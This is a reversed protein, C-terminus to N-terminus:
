NEPLGRRNLEANRGGLVGIRPTQQPLVDLYISTKVEADIATHSNRALGPTASESIASSHYITFKIQGQL